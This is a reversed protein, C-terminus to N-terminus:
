QFKTTKIGASELFSLFLGISASVTVSNESLSINTDMLFHTTGKNNFIVTIGTNFSFVGIAYKSFLKSYSASFYPAFSTGAPHIKLASFAFGYSYILQKSSNSTSSVGGILYISQSSTKTDKKVVAAKFQMGYAKTSSFSHSKSSSSLYSFGFDARGKATFGITSIIGSVQNNTFGGSIISFGGEGKKVFESQAIINSALLISLLFVLLIKKM